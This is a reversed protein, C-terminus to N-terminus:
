SRRTVIRNFLSRWTSRSLESWREHVYRLEDALVAASSFRHAPEKKLCKSVIRIAEDPIRDQPDVPIPKDNRINFIVAQEHGGGFPKVGDLIESLVVGLSWIDTRHDLGVGRTQEPSMYSVTGVTSDAETIDQMKLKALGFDVIRVEGNSTLMINSPKLDRHVIGVSHAADLGEAVQRGINIADRAMIKTSRHHEKLTPGDIYEMVLFWHGDLQQIDYLTCVFRHDLAGAAVAEVRFRERSEKDEMLHDPLFKLAVFRRFSTDWAKYVTGMGGRGVLQIIDFTGIREGQM